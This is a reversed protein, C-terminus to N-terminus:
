LIPLQQKEALCVANPLFLLCQNARFRFLIDSYPSMDIQLSNNWPVLVILIWRLMNTYYLASRMMENFIIKNEGNYLQFIASNANSLLWEFFYKNRKNKEELLFMYVFEVHLIINLTAHNFRNIKTFHKKKKKKQKDPKKPVGTEEM